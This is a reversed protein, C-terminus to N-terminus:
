TCIECYRSAFFSAFCGGHRSNKKQLEAHMAFYDSHGQKVLIEESQRFFDMVSLQPDDHHVVESVQFSRKRGYANCVAVGTYEQYHQFLVGDSITKNFGSPLKLIYSGCDM